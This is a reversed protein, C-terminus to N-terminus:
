YIEVEFLDIIVEEGKGHKCPPRNIKGLTSGDAVVPSCNRLFM